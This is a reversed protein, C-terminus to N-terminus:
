LLSPLEIKPGQDYNTEVIQSFKNKLCCLTMTHTMSIIERCQKSKVKEFM